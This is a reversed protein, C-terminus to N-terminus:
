DRKKTLMVLGTVTSGLGVVALGLGVAQGAPSSSKVSEVHGSYYYETHEGNVQWVGLGTAILLIGVILLIAELKKSGM